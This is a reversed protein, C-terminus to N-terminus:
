FQLARHQFNARRTRHPPPQWQAARIGSQIKHSIDIVVCSTILDRLPIEDITKGLPNCHAPADIHTGIGAPMTMSQVRFKVNTTCDQYDLINKHDFGCTTDWYPIDKKLSHTLDLLKFPFIM